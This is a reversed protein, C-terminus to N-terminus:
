TELCEHYISMEMGVILIFGYVEKQTHTDNENQLQKVTEKLIAQLFLQVIECIM